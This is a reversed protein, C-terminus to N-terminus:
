RCETPFSYDPYRSLVARIQDKITGLLHECARERALDRYPADLKAWQKCGDINQQVAEPPWHNLDGSSKALAICCKQYLICPNNVKPVAGESAAEDSKISISVPQGQGSLSASSALNVQGKISLSSLSPVIEQLVDVIQSFQPNVYRPPIGTTKGDVQSHAITIQATGDDIHRVTTFVSESCGFNEVIRNICAADECALSQKIKEKGLQAKLNEMTMPQYKKSGQLVGAIEAALASGWSSMKSALEPPFDKFRVEDVFLPTREEAELTGPALSLLIGALLVFRM